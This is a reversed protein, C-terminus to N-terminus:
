SNYVGSLAMIDDLLLGSLEDCVQWITGGQWGMLKCWEILEGHAQIFITLNLLQLANM